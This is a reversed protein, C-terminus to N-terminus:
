NSQALLQEAPCEIAPCIADSVAPPGDRVEAGANGGEENENDDETM